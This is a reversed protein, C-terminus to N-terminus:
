ELGFEALWSKVAAYAADTAAPLNWGHAKLAVDFHRSALTKGAADKVWARYGKLTGEVNAYAAAPHRTNM